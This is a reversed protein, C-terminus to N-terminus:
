VEIYKIFKECKDINVKFETASPISSEHVIDGKFVTFEIHLMEAINSFSYMLDGYASIMGVKAREHCYIINTFAGGAVGAIVDADNMVDVQEAFSLDEMCIIHYGHRAFLNEVEETNTLRKWYRKRSLFIKKWITEGSAMRGTIVSERINRVAFNSILFDAKVANIGTKFNVPMWCVPSVYVLKKVHVRSYMEVPVIPHHFINVRDFLERFNPVTFVVSDILVPLRRYEEYRDVFALRSLIEVTLHYYNGSCLGMCYVAEDVIVETKKWAAKVWKGNQSCAMICGTEIDYRKEKDREYVDCLLVEGISLINDAGYVEIDKFETIYIPPSKVITRSAEEREGYVWSKFICVNENPNLIHYEQHNQECYKLGGTIKKFYFFQDIGYKKKSKRYRCWGRYLDSRKMLYVYFKYTVLWYVYEPIWTFIRRSFRLVGEQKLFAVADKLIKEM